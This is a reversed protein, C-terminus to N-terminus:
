DLNIVIGVGNQDMLLSARKIHIPAELIYIGGILSLICGAGLVYGGLGDHDGNAYLISSVGLAGGGITSLIVGRYHHKVYINFEKGPTNIGSIDMNRYGYDRYYSENRLSDYMIGKDPVKSYQSFISTTILLSFLILLHKM